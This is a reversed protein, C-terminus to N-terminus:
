KGGAYIREAWSLIVPALEEQDRSLRLVIVLSSYSHGSEDPEILAAVGHIPRSSAALRSMTGLGERGPPTLVEVRDAKQSVLQDDKYAGSPFDSAPRIKEAIVSQLMSRHDPFYRAILRAVEFRGSTEGNSFSLQIASGRLRKPKLGDKGLLSSPTVLEQSIVTFWGNAGYLNACHWGRPALIGLDNASQYIALRSTFRAPLTTSISKAKPAPAPGAQGDSPCRVFPITASAVFTPTSALWVAFCSLAVFRRM